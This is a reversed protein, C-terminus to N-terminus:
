EGDSHTCWASPRVSQVEEGDFFHRASRTPSFALSIGGTPSGCPEQPLHGAAGGGAGPTLGKIFGQVLPMRRQRCLLQAIVQPAAPGQGDLFSGRYAATPPHSVVRPGLCPREQGALCAVGLGGTAPPYGASQPNWEWDAGQCLISM